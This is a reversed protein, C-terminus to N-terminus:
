KMFKRISAGDTTIVRLLYSGASLEQTPIYHLDPAEVYRLLRGQIDMIEIKLVPKGENSIWLYDGAPVPALIWEKPFSEQWGSVISIPLNTNQPDYLFQDGNNLQGEYNIECSLSNIAQMTSITNGPFFAQVLSDIGAPYHNIGLPIQLVNGQTITYLLNGQIDWFYQTGDEDAGEYAFPGQFNQAFYALEGNGILFPLTAAIQPPIQLLPSSCYCIFDGELTFYLNNQNPGGVPDLSFYLQDGIMVVNVDEENVDLVFVFGDVPGLLQGDTDSFLPHGDMDFYLYETDPDDFVLEYFYSGSQEIIQASSIDPDPGPFELFDLIHHPLDQPNLPGSIDTNEPMNLEEEVLAYHVVQVENVKYGTEVQGPDLAVGGGWIIVINKLAADEQEDYYFIDPQVPFEQRITVSDGPALYTPPLGYYYEGVVDTLDAPPDETSINVHIGWTYTSFPESGENYFTLNVPM